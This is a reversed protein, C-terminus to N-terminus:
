ALAARIRAPLSRKLSSPITRPPARRRSFASFESPIPAVARASAACRRPPVAASPAASRHASFRDRGRDALARALSDAGRKCILKTRGVARGVARQLRPSSLWVHQITQSPIVHLPRALAAQTALWHRLEAVSYSHGDSAHAVMWLTDIPKLTLM